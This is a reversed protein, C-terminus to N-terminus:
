KKELIICQTLVPYSGIYFKELNALIAEASFEPYGYLQARDGEVLKMGSMGVMARVDQNTGWENRTRRTFPELNLFLDLTILFRGGPKLCRHAHEMVERLDAEPLHELVSISVFLDYYNAELAAKGITTNKLTVSADFWANLKRISSEDSPWGVGAAGMGPDVNVM